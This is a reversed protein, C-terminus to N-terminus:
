EGRKLPRLLEELLSQAFSEPDHPVGNKNLRVQGMAIMTVDFRYSERNIVYRGSNDHESYHVLMAGARNSLHIRAEDSSTRELVLIEEKSELNFAECNAKLCARLQEWLIPGQQRKLKDDVVRAEAEARRKEDQKNIEAVQKKAWDNM